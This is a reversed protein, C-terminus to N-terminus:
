TTPIPWHRRGPHQAGRSEGLRRREDLRAPRRRHHHRRRQHGRDQRAGPQGSQEPRHVHHRRRRLRGDPQRARELPDRASQDLRQRLHRSPQLEFGTDVDAVIVQDSGTTVSWAPPPMSAGPATSSGSTATPMTRTTPCPRSRSRRCRSLTSSRRAARSIRPSSAWLDRRARAGHLARLHDDAHVTAGEAAILRCCNRLRRPLGRGSSSISPRLRPRRRYRPRRLRAPSARGRSCRVRKSPTSAWGSDRAPEGAGCPEHGVGRALRARSWDSSPELHCRASRPM